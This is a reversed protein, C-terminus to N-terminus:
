SIMDRAQAVWDDRRIRDPFGKLGAQVRDVDDPTWSAIDRLSFVGMENLRRQLVPGVGRIRTLDDKGRGPLDPRAARREASQPGSGEADLDAMAVLAQPLRPGTPNPAAAAPRETRRLRPAEKAQTIPEIASDRMRLWWWVTGGGLLFALLLELWIQTAM